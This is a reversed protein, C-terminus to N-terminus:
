NISPASNVLWFRRGGYLPKDEFSKATEYGGINNTVSWHYQYLRKNPISLDEDDYRTFTCGLNTLVREVNEASMVTGIGNYANQGGEEGEVLRHEFMPDSTDAVVTELFFQKSNKAACALDQKWNTLHYLVGFHIILDVPTDLNWPKDQDIIIASDTHLRADSATVSAGLTKLYEGINGLGCGLEHVTKNQFWEKGLIQEMKKVRNIRWQNYDNHFKDKSNVLLEYM